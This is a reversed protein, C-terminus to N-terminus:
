KRELIISTMDHEKLKERVKEIRPAVSAKYISALNKYERTVTLKNEDEDYHAIFSGTVSLGRKFNIDEASQPKFYDGFEWVIKYYNKYSSGYYVPYKRPPKDDIAVKEFSNGPYIFIEPYDDGPSIFNELNIEFNLRFEEPSQLSDPAPLASHVAEKLESFLIANMLEMKEDEDCARMIRRAEIADQYYFAISGSGTLNNNEGPRLIMDIMSANNWKEEPTYFLENSASTINLALKNHYDLDIVGVESGRDCPDLYLDLPPIYTLAHDFMAFSPFDELGDEDSCIWIVHSEIGSHRLMSCLLTAKSAEDLTEMELMKDATALPIYVSGYLRNAWEDRVKHFLAEILDRVDPYQEKIKGVKKKVKGSERLIKAYKERLQYFNLLYEWSGAIEVTRHPTEYKDMKLWMKTSINYLPPRFMEDEIAPIDDATAILVPNKNKKLKKVDILEPNSIFYQYLYHEPIYVGVRAHKVPIKEQFVYPPLFVIYKQSREYSIDIVSGVKAGPVAFSKADVKIDRLKDKVWLEDYIDKKALKKKDSEFNYCTAEISGIKRHHYYPLTIDAYELGAETYIKIRKKTTMIVPYKGQREIRYVTEKQVVMADAFSDIPCFQQTLLLDSPTDWNLEEIASATQFLLFIIVIINKM